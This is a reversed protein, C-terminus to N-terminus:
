KGAQERTQKISDMYSVFDEQLSRILLEKHEAVVDISAGKLMARHYEVLAEYTDLLEEHFTQKDPIIEMTSSVRHSMMGALYRLPAVSNCSQMLPLLMDVGLKAGKDDPDLERMLTSYPKGVQEAITKIPQPSNQVMELIIRQLDQPM